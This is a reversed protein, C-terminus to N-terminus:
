QTLDFLSRISLYLIHAAKSRIHDKSDSTPPSALHNGESNELESRETKVYPPHVLLALSFPNNSPM